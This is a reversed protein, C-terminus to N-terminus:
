DNVHLHDDHNSDHTCHDLLATRNELERIRAEIAAIEAKMKEQELKSQDFKLRSQAYGAMTAVPMPLNIEATAAALKAKAAELDVHAVALMQAQAMALGMQARVHEDKVAQDFRIVRYAHSLLKRFGFSVLARNFSNQRDLALDTMTPSDTYKGKKNKTDFTIVAAGDLRAKRQDSRLYKIDIGNGNFHSVSPSGTGDEGVSGNLVVDMYGDAALAGFLRGLAHPKAYTRSTNLHLNIRKAAYDFALGSCIGAPSKNLGLANMDILQTKTDGDKEYWGTKHVMSGEIPKSIRAPHGSTEKAFAATYEELVSVVEPKKSSRMKELLADIDAVKNVFDGTFLQKSLAALELDITKVKAQFILIVTTEYVKQETRPLTGKFKRAAVLDREWKAKEEKKQAIAENTPKNYEDIFEQVAKKLAKGPACGTGHWAALILNDEKHCSKWKQAHLIPWEDQGGRKLLHYTQDAAAFVYQVHDSNSLGPETIGANRPNEKSTSAEFIVITPVLELKVHCLDGAITIEIYQLPTVGTGNLKPLGLEEAFELALKEGGMNKSAIVLRFTGKREIVKTPIGEEDVVIASHIKQDSRTSEDTPCATEAAGVPQDTGNTRPSRPLVTRDKIAASSTADSGIAIPNAKPEDGNMRAASKDPYHLKPTRACAPDLIDFVRTAM